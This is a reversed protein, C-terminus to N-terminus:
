GHFFCIGCNQDAQSSGNGPHPVSEAAFRSGLHGKKGARIGELCHRM